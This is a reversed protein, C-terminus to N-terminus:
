ATRRELKYVKATMGVTRGDMEFPKVYRVECLPRLSRQLSDHLMRMSERELSDFDVGYLESTETVIDFVDCAIIVQFHESNRVTEVAADCCRQVYREISDLARAKRVRESM